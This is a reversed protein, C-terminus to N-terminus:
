GILEDIRANIANVVTVRPTTKAEEAAKLTNLGELDTSEKILAILKDAPLDVSFNAPAVESGGGESDEIDLDYIVAEFEFPIVCGLRMRGDIFIKNDHPAAFQGLRIEELDQILDTGLLFNRSDIAVMQGNKLAKTPVIEIGLYKITGDGEVTFGPSIVVNGNYTGGMSMQLLLFANPSVFINFSGDEVGRARADEPCALVIKKIEGQINDVTPAVGKRKVSEASEKLVKLIGDFDNANADSDGNFIKSEIENSLQVALMTMTADELTDPLETNRAGPTLMWVTRKRELDDICQELNIKYDKIELLKESLKAIQQPTWGCDGQDAQLIDKVIDLINLKTSKKVGPVPTIKGREILKGGFIAKTFWEMNTSPQYTLSEINYLNNNEAM